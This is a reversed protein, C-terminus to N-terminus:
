PTGKGPGHHLKKLFSISARELSSFGPEELPFHGCNELMVLEKPGQIRDFFPKSAEITTWLDAAPHALLLPCVDFNEPEIAPRISMLSHMFRVPVRNGGGIPDECLLRTLEPDNTIGKMNSFWKIPLRLGGFLNAAFPLLPNLMRNLRPSRAFQDVVIPLRPDCLTTAIVGAAKGGKAAALYGLYGGLSMGFLVVPKSNRQSEADALAVVCDVWREYDFLSRPSVTLGYGPFDPAVVEYGHSNLLVGFPALLRGYGGGGHLLIVTLPSAPARFRDLHIEAGHWPWWEEVPEREATVRIREPMYRQYRRWHDIQSYSPRDSSNMVEELNLVGQRRLTAM